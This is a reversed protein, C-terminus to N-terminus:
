VNELYGEWSNFKFTDQNEPHWSPSPCNLVISIDDSINSIKIPTGPELIILDMESEAGEFDLVIDRVEKGNYFEVRVKGYLCTMYGTREKHLIVDKVVGKTLYTAYVMEPVHGENTLKDWSRYVPVMFGDKTEIKQIKKNKM